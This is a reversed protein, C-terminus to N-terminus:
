SMWVSLSGDARRGVTVWNVTDFTTLETDSEDFKAQYVFADRNVLRYTCSAESEGTQERSVPEWIPAIARLADPMRRTLHEGNAILFDIVEQSHATPPAKM